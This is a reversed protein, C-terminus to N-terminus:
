NEPRGAPSITSSSRPAAFRHARLPQRQRPLDAHGVRGGGASPDSASDAGLSALRPLARRRRGGSGPCTWNSRPFAAFGTGLSITIETLPDDLRRRIEGVVWGVVLGVAVGGVTTVVFGFTAGVLSFSGAVAAALAVRLAVFWAADNLLSEGEVLNVIRRRVGRRRMIATAALPDTPSVIAGLAFAMAWSLDLARRGVVAVTVTTLVILGISTLM